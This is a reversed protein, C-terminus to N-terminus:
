SGIGAKAPQGRLVVPLMRPNKARTAREDVAPAIAAGSAAAPGSAAAAVTVVPAAAGSPEQLEAIAPPDGAVTIGAAAALSALSIATAFWFSAAGLRPSAPTVAKKVLSFGSNAAFLGSLEPSGKDISASM